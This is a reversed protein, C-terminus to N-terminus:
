CGHCGLEIKVHEVGRDLGRRLQDQLGVREVGTPTAQVGTQSVSLSVSLLSILPDITSSFFLFNAITCARTPRLILRSEGGHEEDAFLPARFGYQGDCKVDVQLICVARM